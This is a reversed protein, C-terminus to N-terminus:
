KPEIQSSEPKKKKLQDDETRKTKAALLRIQELGELGM